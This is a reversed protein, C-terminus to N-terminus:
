GTYTLSGLEATAGRRRHLEAQGAVALGHLNRGAEAAEQAVRAVTRKSENLCSAARTNRARRCHIRVRRPQGRRNASRLPRSSPASRTSRPRRHAHGETTTSARSTSPTCPSAASSSTTGPTLARAPIDDKKKQSRSSGFSSLLQFLFWKTIMRTGHTSRPSLAGEVNTRRVRM